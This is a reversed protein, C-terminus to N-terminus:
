VEELRVPRVLPKGLVQTIRMPARPAERALVFLREARPARTVASRVASRLCASRFISRVFRRTSTPQVQTAACAQRLRCCARFCFIQRQLVGEFRPSSERPILSPSAGTFARAAIRRIPARSSPVKRFRTILALRASGGNPTSRYQQSRMTRRSPRGPLTRRNQRAIFTVARYM